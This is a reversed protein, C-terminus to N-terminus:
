LADRKEAQHILVGVMILHVMDDLISAAYIEIPTFWYAFYPAMIIAALFTVLPSRVTRAAYIAGITGLITAFTTSYYIALDADLNLASIFIGVVLALMIVTVVSVTSWIYSM